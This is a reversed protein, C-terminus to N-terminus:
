GISSMIGMLPLLVSLLIIGVVVSLFIVLTPELISLLKRLQKDTAKEYHRAIQLMITDVNGSVFGVSLMKSYLNSFIKAKAFAEPLTSRNSIEESVLKLKIEMNENEVLESIMELSQFTDMGSSYALYMGSAVRGAAINEYFDRTLPFKSFFKRFKKNFFSMRNLIALLIVFGLIILAIGIAYKSLSSGISMLKEAFPTMQTGLQAFVQRFIPLVKSILVIIILIMMVIMILPYTLASRIGDSIDTEREYYEALSLLVEDTTGSEEGLKILGIVYKPFVLTEELAQYFHNGNSCSIRITDLIERGEKSLTDVKLIDMGESPTIGAQFILYAQRCFAAIEASSLLKQNAM